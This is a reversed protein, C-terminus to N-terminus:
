ARWKAVEARDILKRLETEPARYGPEVHVVPYATMSGSLGLRETVDIPSGSHMVLHQVFDSDEELLSVVQENVLDSAIQGSQIALGRSASVELWARRWFRDKRGNPSTIERGALGLLEQLSIFHERSQPATIVGPETKCWNKLATKPYKLDVGSLSLKQLFGEADTELTESLKKKWVKSLDGQNGRYRGLERDDIDSFVLHVGQTSCDQAEVISVNPSNDKNLAVVRAERPLLFTESDSTWIAVCNRSSAPGSIPTHALQSFEDLQIVSESPLSEQSFFGIQRQTKTVALVHHGSSAQRDILGSGASDWASLPSFGFGEEDNLGHWVFYYLSRQKPATLVADPCASWGSSRLPGVKIVADFLDAKKYEASTHVFKLEQHDDLGRASLISEFFQRATRHCFIGVTKNEEGILESLTKGLHEVLPNEAGELSCLASLVSEYYLTFDAGLSSAMRPVLSLFSEKWEATFERPETLWSFLLARLSRALQHLDPDDTHQLTRILSFFPKRVLELEGSFVECRVVEFNSVPTYQEM